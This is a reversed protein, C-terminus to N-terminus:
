RLEKSVINEIRIDARGLYALFYILRISGYMTLNLLLLGSLPIIIEIRRLIVKFSALSSLQMIRILSTLLVRLVSVFYGSVRILHLEPTMMLLVGVLLLVLIVLGSIILLHLLLQTKVLILKLSLSHLLVRPRRSVSGIILIIVSRMLLCLLLVISRWIINRWHSRRM